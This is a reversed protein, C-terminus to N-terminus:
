DAKGLKAKEIEAVEPELKKFLVKIDDLKTGSKVENYRWYNKGVEPFCAKQGLMTGLKIMAKPTIPALLIRITEIIQVCNYLIEGAKEEDEKVVNWVASKDFYKNAFAVFKAIRQLAETLKLSEYRTEADKLVSRIEFRVENEFEGKPVIGMFRSQVFTLTRHIFNGVNAVLDNNNIEVFDKWKFDSDKTEPMRLTIYYRTLDAGYTDVLYRLDLFWNKSKSMKKGELTLWANAPVDYALNMQESVKRGDNWGLLLAPWIITHFVINDKGLFYYSKSRSEIWYDKWNDSQGKTSSFIVDNSFGKKGKMRNSWEVAASWYGTVAEFWVYIVKDKKNKIDIEDPISVGYPLNRTIPRPKLEKLWSNTVSVVTDRWNEINPHTKLWKKIDKGLKKLDLFLDESEQLEIDTDGDRTHPNILETPELTRGCNDCQDGRADKAGCHPCEGEIFRDLLFKKEKEYWYQKVTQKVLYDKKYLEVFLKQVIEKHTATDTRTYLNFDIGLDSITKLHRKHYKDAVAEPTTNEQEARIISPTGHVDSGSVMLVENGRLRQFRAFIDAPLMAGAIHGLHLDGNVYPWAIGVLVKESKSM